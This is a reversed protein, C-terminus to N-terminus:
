DPQAENLDDRRTIALQGELLPTCQANALDINGMRLVYGSDLPKVPLPCIWGNDMEIQLNGVDARTELQFIGVDDTTGPYLGGNIRAGNLPKGNFLLRGFLLQLPMAEYDLTVVNGPYLTVSKEREDFSYLTEGAPSLSVRYQEFPSLSIISPSGVIAYGRRQGNVKVDFVDGSRGAITVVLASEARDEGGIAVVNGDTIFSTSMSGGWSTTNNTETRTHSASFSARGYHNAFQVSGDMREEGTGGEVGADVRLDSDLLNGDDWSTSLRLRESRNTTVGNKRVEARPTARFNWHDTRYRFSFSILGIENDGSKSLSISVDGDYDFTRFLTRRYDLSNTRAPDQEENNDNYSQNLSYRYGLSGGFLPMSASLSHQEFANGFLGPIPNENDDIENDLPEDHWLRRYNGSLSLDGLSLRSNLTFGKSGVDSLMVSPSIEYRYGFHYLGFEMLSEDNNVAVAGTAALTDTIRRSVGARALWQSTTEPLAKDSTRNVLEGTEAFYLWEGMPPIQNQKAFFRTETAIVNGSEDLIRIEIDYAGSPFSSTNLQQAGAEYFASNILRDDKRIEVRGRTPLFVEVPMGGSFDLDERTNDSSNIRVGIMPQDSTLNLGFGRTSLLGINYEQGEFDRQGYLQNVSFHNTDSYDWSFYLSNEQFAAMTLGNLTYSNDSGEASSGSVAASFNQMVAFGADSPPLYKMVDAARTLQFRRNVFVDIRFRSEDFIVGAVPTELIGCDTAFDSLCVEDAHTNLEGSLTDTILAPDNLNGILRVVEAANALEIVGPSFSVLQSTLYRNGFYIDVLSQQTGSLAEFGPPATTAALFIPAEANATHSFASAAFAFLM